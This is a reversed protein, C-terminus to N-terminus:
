SRSLSAIAEMTAEHVHKVHDERTMWNDAGCRCQVRHAQWGEIAHNRLSALVADHPTVSRSLRADGLQEIIEAVGDKVLEPPVANGSSAIADLQACATLILDRPTPRASREAAARNNASVRIRDRQCISCFTEGRNNKKRTELMRHGRKCRVQPLRGRPVPHGLARLWGAVDGTEVGYEDAVMVIDDTLLYLAVAEEQRGREVEASM